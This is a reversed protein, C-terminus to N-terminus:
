EGANGDPTSMSVIFAPIFACSAAGPTPPPLLLPFRFTTLTRWHTSAPLHQLVLNQTYYQLLSSDSANKQTGQDHASGRRTCSPVELYRRKISCGIWYGCCRIEHSPTVIVIIVRLNLILLRAYASGGLSGVASRKVVRASSAM